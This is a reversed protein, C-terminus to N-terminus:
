VRVQALLRVADQYPGVFGRGRMDAPAAIRWGPVDLALEDRWLKVPKDGEEFAGGFAEREEALDPELAHDRARDGVRGVADVERTRRRPRAVVPHMATGRDTDALATAGTLVERLPHYVALGLDVHALEIRAAEAVPRRRVIRRRDRDGIVFVHIIAVPRALLVLDPAPEPGGRQMVPQFSRARLEGLDEAPLPRAPVIRRALSLRMGELSRVPPPLDTLFAERHAVADPEHVQRGERFELHRPRVGKGKQLADAGVPHRRPVPSDYESVEEILVADNFAFEGDRAKRLIAEVDEGRCGRLEVVHVLQAPANGRPLADNDAVHRISVADEDKRTRPRALHKRRAGGRVEAISSERPERTALNRDGSDGPNTREAYGIDTLEAPLQMDRHVPHGCDEVREHRRTPLVADAQEARVRQVAEPHLLRIAPPARLEGVLDPKDCGVHLAEDGEVLLENAPGCRQSFLLLSRLDAEDIKGDVGDVVVAVAVLRDVVRAGPVARDPECRTACESVLDALRECEGVDVRREGAGALSELHQYHGITDGGANEPLGGPIRLIVAQSGVPPSSASHQRDGGRRELVVQEANNWEMVLREDQAVLKFSATDGVCSGEFDHADKVIRPHSHVPAAATSGSTVTARLLQRAYKALADVSVAANILVMAGVGADMDGTMASVFGPMGGGHGIITHGDEQFTGLGYGNWWEGPEAEIVRSSM